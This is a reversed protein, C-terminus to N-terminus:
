PGKRPTPAQRHSNNTTQCPRDKRKSLSPRYSYRRVQMAVSGGGTTLLWQMYATYSQGPTLNQWAPNDVLRYGSSSNPLDTQINDTIANAGATAASSWMITVRQNTGGTGGYLVQSRLAVSGSGPATFTLRVNTADIVAFSAAAISYTPNAIRTSALIQGPNLSGAVRVIAGQTVAASGGTVTVRALAYAGAPTAPVAPNSPAPTGKVKAFQWTDGTGAGIDVSSVQCIVLDVRNSGSPEAPDLTVTEVADSTCLVSGTGNASPVVVQGVSVNLVMGTTATVACGSCGGGAPFEAGILFRDVSAPYQLSQLWQPQYRTM